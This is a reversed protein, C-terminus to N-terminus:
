ALCTARLVRDWNTRRFGDVDRPSWGRASLADALAELHEPSRVGEPVATPAFGGDFDSGLVCRDRGILRAVREVHAVADSLTAGDHKALFKGFLNLGVVGGRRGIEGIHDDRLHRERDDALARCNSHSAVITRDTCACLDQFAADALHSADHLMRHADMAAVVDRGLNTLGAAASNGGAHRSGLAWTLGVVRVGRAHWWAVDDAHRIPDAGEMLLVVRLPASSVLDAATRVISLRGSREMSEYWELQRVGAAFADDPDDDRYGWPLGAGEVGRETFITGLVTRVGGRALAPFSVCRTNADSVETTLDNGQLAIYALDLHGDCWGHDNMARLSAARSGSVAGRARIEIPLRTCHDTIWGNLGGAEVRAFAECRERNADRGSRRQHHRGSQAGVWRPHARVRLQSDRRASPRRREADGTRRAAHRRREGVRRM